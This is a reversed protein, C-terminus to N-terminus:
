CLHSGHRHNRQLVPLKSQAAKPTTPFFRV